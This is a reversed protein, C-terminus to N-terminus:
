VRGRCNREERPQSRGGLNRYGRKVLGDTLVVCDDKDQFHDANLSDVEALAAGPAWERNERGLTM